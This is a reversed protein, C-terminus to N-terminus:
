IMVGNQQCKLFLYIIVVLLNKKFASLKLWCYEKNNSHKYKTLNTKLEDYIKKIHKNKINIVPYIDKANKVSKTNSDNAIDSNYITVLELIDNESFCTFSLANKNNVNCYLRKSKNIDQLPDVEKTM